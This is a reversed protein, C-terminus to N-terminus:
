FGCASRIAKCANGDDGLSIQPFKDSLLYNYANPSGLRLLEPLQELYCAGLALCFRRHEDMKKHVILQEYAAINEPSSDKVVALLRSAFLESVGEDSLSRLLRELNESM